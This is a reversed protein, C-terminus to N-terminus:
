CSPLTPTVNDHYYSTVMGLILTLVRWVRPVSEMVTTSATIVPVMQPGLTLPCHVYMQLVYVTFSRLKIVLSTKMPIMWVDMTLLKKTFM